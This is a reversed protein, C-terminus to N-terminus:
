RISAVLIDKISASLAEHFQEDTQDVHLEQTLGRSFSAIVNTEGALMACARAQSYGGSLAAVRLVNPHKTLDYYHNGIDPLTLKLIVRGSVRALRDTLQTKLTEEAEKKDVAKISIEPEIIPVLGTQLIQEAVAFQQELVQEIGNPNNGLIVSRMKTGFVGQSVALNLAAMLDPMDKMLQVNDAPDKLGKDVKVFPLIGKEGWLYQATPLGGVKRALTDEFLITGLIEPSRFAPDTMIRERMAHMLDFMTAPDYTGDEIGYQALAGPTSGGSQDLAAIFGMGTEMLAYQEKNPHPM